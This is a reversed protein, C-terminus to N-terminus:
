EEEGRFLMEHLDWFQMWSIGMMSELEENPTNLYESLNLIMKKLLENM